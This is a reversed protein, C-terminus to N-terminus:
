RVLVAKSTKTEGNAKLRILYVGAALGRGGEDSGDWISRWRGAPMGPNDILVRVLQGTISYVELRVAREEPIRYEIITSTAFPNPYIADLEFVTPATESQFGSLESNGGNAISQAAAGPIDVSSGELYFEGLKRCM